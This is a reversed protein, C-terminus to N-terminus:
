FMRQQATRRELVGRAVDIMAEVRELTEEFGCQWLNVNM